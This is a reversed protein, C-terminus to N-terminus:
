CNKINYRSHSIGPLEYFRSDANWRKLKRRGRSKLGVVSGSCSGQVPIIKQRLGTGWAIIRYNWGCTRTAGGRARWEWAKLSRSLRAASAAIARSVQASATSLPRATASGSRRRRKRRSVKASRLFLAKKCQNAKGVRPLWPSNRNDELGAGADDTRLPPWAEKTTCPSAESQARDKSSM